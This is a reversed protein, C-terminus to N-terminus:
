GANSQEGMLWEHVAGAVQRGAAIAHVILSAGRQVDGAAFVGPVSTEFHPGIAVNGRSDLELGLKEVLGTHPVHLFGMALLVMDVHMDFDTGPVETMKWGKPGQRWQVECGYLRDVRVGAGGFRKTLVSWRRECGEEHSTSSRMITPWQPWPTEPNRRDPPRPLIEFQHIEAAGQRRVTGICDSGTDGGGIVVVVKGAASIRDEAGLDDGANLRNQQKLLEMAFHINELGRGPVKLDRPVSAGMTLCIADYRSRLYKTSVDEGVAVGTQFKVGEATLQDLRRDLIRKALKFDPIGYRLLGGVRDDAEFVTVDDGFRAFQQAAALGAPGSGVIAVKKGTARAAPMPAIWGEAFGREVIQLEIQRISVPQDNINLTCAAECPAPCLRGTIEPFNDTSHLSQCAERWRGRYILDNFEPIRNELPCGAGHCFPIGCDMCRAAQRILVEDPNAIDIECYDGARQEVSRHAPAERAFELFGTPKGM